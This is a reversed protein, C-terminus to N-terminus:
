FYCNIICFVGVICFYMLFFDGLMWVNIFGYKLSTWFSWRKIGIKMANNMNQIIQIVANRIFYRFIATSDKVNPAFHAKSNDKFYLVNSLPHSLPPRFRYLPHGASTGFALDGGLPESGPLLELLHSWFPVWYRLKTM